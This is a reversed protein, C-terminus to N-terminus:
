VFGGVDCGVGTGDTPNSKQTSVHARTYESAGVDMGVDSGLGEGLRAGVSRGVPSGVITGDGDGDSSGVSRGLPSGDIAGVASGVGTGELTGDGRGVRFSSGEAEGVIENRGVGNGVIGGVMEGNGVARGVSIGVGRGVDVGVSTGVGKGVSEGVTNGDRSGDGAGVDRGEGSGVDVGVFHHGGPVYRSSSAGQPIQWFHGRPRKAFTGYGGHVLVGRWASPKDVLVVGGHAPQGFPFNALEVPEDLHRSHARPLYPTCEDLNPVILQVTHWAPRIAGVRLVVRHM